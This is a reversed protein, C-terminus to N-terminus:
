AYSWCLEWSCFASLQTWNHPGGIVRKYCTIADDSNGQLQYFKAYFLSYFYSDKWKSRLDDVVNAVLQMDGENLGFHQVYLNYSIVGSAIFAYRLTNKYEISKKILALANSRDGPYGVFQVVRLVRNPLYSTILEIFGNIASVGCLFEDQLQPHKWDSKNEGMALLTLMSNIVSRGKLICRIMNSVSTNLLFTVVCILGEVESAIM